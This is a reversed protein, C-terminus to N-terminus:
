YELGRSAKVETDAHTQERSQDLSPWGSIQCAVRSAGFSVSILSPEPGDHKENSDGSINMTHSGNTLWLLINSDTPTTGPSTLYWGAEFETDYFGPQIASPLCHNPSRKDRLYVGDAALMIDHKLSPTEHLERLGGRRTINLIKLAKSLFGPGDACPDVLRVLYIQHCFPNNRSRM